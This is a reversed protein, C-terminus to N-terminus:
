CPKSLEIGGLVTRDDELIRDIIDMFPDLKPRKPPPRRRYGPPESHRLMKKVTDRAIGIPEHAPLASRAAYSNLLNGLQCHARAQDAPAKRNVSSLVARLSIFDALAFRADVCWKSPGVATFIM